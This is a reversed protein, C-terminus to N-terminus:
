MFWGFLKKQENYGLENYGLENYGLENYGLENYGLKVICCKKAEILLDIEETFPQCLLGKLKLCFEFGFYQKYERILRISLFIKSFTDM